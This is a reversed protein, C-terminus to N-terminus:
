TPLAETFMLLAILMIGVVVGQLIFSFTAALSRRKHELAGSELLCDSFLIRAPSVTQTPERRRRHIAPLPAHLEEQTEPELIEISTPM